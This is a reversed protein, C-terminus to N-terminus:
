IQLHESKEEYSRLMLGRTYGRYWVVTCSHVCSYELVYFSLEVLQEIQQQTSCTAAVNIWLSVGRNTSQKHNIM